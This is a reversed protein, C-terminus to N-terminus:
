LKLSLAEFSGVEFHGRRIVRLAFLGGAWRDGVPRLRALGQKGSTCFAACSLRTRPGRQGGHCAAEVATKRTSTQLEIEEKWIATTQTKWPVWFRSQVTKEAWFANGPGHTPRNNTGVYNEKKELCNLVWKRDAFITNQTASSCIAM